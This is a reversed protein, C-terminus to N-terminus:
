VWQGDYKTDNNIITATRYEIPEGNVIQEIQENTVTYDFQGLELLRQNVNINKINIKVMSVKAKEHQSGGIMNSMSLSIESLELMSKTMRHM